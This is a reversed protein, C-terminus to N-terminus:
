NAANDENDAVQVIGLAELSNLVAIGKMKRMFILKIMKQDM